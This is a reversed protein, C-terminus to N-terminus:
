LETHGHHAKKTKDAHGRKPYFRSLRLLEERIENEAAELEPSLKSGQDNKETIYNGDSDFGSCVRSCLSCSYSYILHDIFVRSIIFYWLHCIKWLVESNHSLKQWLSCHTWCCYYDNAVEPMGLSLYVILFHARSLWYSSIIFNIFETHSLKRWTLLPNLLFCCDNGVETRSLVIDVNWLPCVLNLCIVM